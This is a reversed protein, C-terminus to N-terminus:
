TPSARQPPSPPFTPSSPSQPKLSFPCSRAMSVSSRSTLSFLFLISTSFGVERLAEWKLQESEKLSKRILIQHEKEFPEDDREAKALQDNLEAVRKEYGKEQGHELRAIQNQLGARANRRATLATENDRLSKLPTRAANLKVALTSALSGSVYNLFAM